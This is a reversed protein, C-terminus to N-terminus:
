LVMCQILQGIIQLIIKQESNGSIGSLAPLFVPLLLLVCAIAVCYVRCINIYQYLISLMDFICVSTPVVGWIYMHGITYRHCICDKDYTCVGLEKDLKKDFQKGIILRIYKFSM